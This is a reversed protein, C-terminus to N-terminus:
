AMGVFLDRQMVPAESAWSSRVAATRRVVDDQTLIKTVRIEEEELARDEASLTGERHRWKRAMGGRLQGVKVGSIYERVEGDRVVPELPTGVDKPAIFLVASTRRPVIGDVAPVDIVRHLAAPIRGNSRIQTCWGFLLIASNPAILPVPMFAGDVEVELGPADSAFVLTATGFDRHESCRPPSALEARPYYDVMRFNCHADAGVDCGIALSTAELIKPMVKSACDEWFALTTTLEDLTMSALTPEAQKIQELREPSLDLVRKQDVHAGGQGAAFSDKYVLNKTYAKNLRDGIEKSAKLEDFVEKISFIPAQPLDTIVLVGNRASEIAAAVKSVPASLSVKPVDMMMM